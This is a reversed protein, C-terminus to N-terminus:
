RIRFHASRPRRSNIPLLDQPCALDGIQHGVVDTVTLWEGARAEIAAGHAARVLVERPAPTM